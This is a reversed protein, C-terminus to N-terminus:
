ASSVVGSLGEILKSENGKLYDGRLIQFLRIDGNYIGGKIIAHRRLGHLGNLFGSRKNLVPQIVFFLINYLEGKM